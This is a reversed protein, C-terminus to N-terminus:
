TQPQEWAAMPEGQERVVYHIAAGVQDPKWLYRTSGHPRWRKQVNAEAGSKRLARTAYAKVQNLIREPSEEARIVFHVHTSRVHAALLTWNRLACHQQIATLVIERGLKGMRYAPSKMQNRNAGERRVNAPAFPVGYGCHDRDVSGAAHGQLHTGYCTFTILYAM